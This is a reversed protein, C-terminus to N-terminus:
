IEQRWVIYLGNHIEQVSAKATELTDNLRHQPTTAAMETVLPVAERWARRWLNLEDRLSQPVSKVDLCTSHVGLLCIECM